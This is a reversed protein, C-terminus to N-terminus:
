THSVIQWTWACTFTRRFPLELVDIVFRGKGAYALL